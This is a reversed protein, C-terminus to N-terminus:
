LIGDGLLFDLHNRNWYIVMTVTPDLTLSHDRELKNQPKHIVVYNKAIERHFSEPLRAWDLIDVLIPLHSEAVAERLATLNEQHADLRSPNRLVIDLDSADHGQGNVRSGYAWIEANPAHRAILTKLEQLYSEKLDLTPM